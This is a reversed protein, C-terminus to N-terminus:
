SSRTPSPPWRSTCSGRTRSSGSPAARCEPSSSGVDVPADAPVTLREGIGAQSGHGTATFELQVSASEAIWCRGARIGGLGDDRTLDEALVVNHPSGIVQPVSYADSNGIAPLRRGDSHVTHLHCDGRYWARGRGRGRAREPPYSPTFEPGQEGFRLTIGARYDLGQPAVQYPGLVM